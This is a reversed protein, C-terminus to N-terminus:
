TTISITHAFSKSNLVDTKPLETTGVVSINLTASAELGARSQFAEEASKEHAHPILSNLHYICGNIGYFKPHRSQYDGVACAVGAGDLKCSADHM